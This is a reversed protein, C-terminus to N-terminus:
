EENHPKFGIKILAEEIQSSIKNKCEDCFCGSLELDYLKLDVKGIEECYGDDYERSIGLYKGCKDCYFEHKHIYIVKKEVIIKKMKVDYGRM